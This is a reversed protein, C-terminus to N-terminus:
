GQLEFAVPVVTWVVQPVGNDIYPAFRVARVAAVASEDLRPFGSSRQVTVERVRGETDIEVRLWVEGTEGLRRSASPYVPKPPVVYRVATLAIARPIQPAAPPPAAPPASPQALVAAPTSAQAPLPESSRAPPPAVDSQPSAAALAALVPVTSQPALRRQPRSSPPSIQPRAAPLQPAPAPVLSVFVPATETTASRVPAIQLLGWTAVIHAALVGAM